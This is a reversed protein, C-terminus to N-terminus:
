LVCADNRQECGMCPAAPDALVCTVPTRREQFQGARLVDADTDAATRLCSVCWFNEEQVRNYEM